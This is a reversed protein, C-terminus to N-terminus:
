DARAVHVVPPGIRVAGVDQDASGHRPHFLVPGSVPVDVHVGKDPQGIGVSGGELLGVPLPSMGSTAVGVSPAVAQTVSLRIASTRARAEAVM